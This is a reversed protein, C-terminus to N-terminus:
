LIAILIIIQTEVLRPEDVTTEAINNNDSLDSLPYIQPHLPCYLRVEATNEASGYM